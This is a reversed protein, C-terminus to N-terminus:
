FKGGNVWESKPPVPEQNIWWEVIQKNDIRFIDFRAIETNEYFLRSYAVVMNGQGVIKFVQDYSGVYNEAPDVDLAAHMALNDFSVYRSASEKRGLVMVDCLFNRVLEKNDETKDIDIPETSGSIQDRQTDPNEKYASIVDWHEIIKDNNDTDFLDTTVWYAEGNNINQYAQVFM